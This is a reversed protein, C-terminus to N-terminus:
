PTEGRYVGHHAVRRSPGEGGTVATRRRRCGDTLRESVQPALYDCTLRRLDRLPHFPGHDPGALPEELLNGDLDLNRVGSEPDAATVAVTLDATSPEAHGSPRNHAMVVGRADLSLADRVISRIPFHLWSRAGVVHRMGLLGHAADLYAIAAVESALRGLPLFLRGAALDDPLLM